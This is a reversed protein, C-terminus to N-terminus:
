MGPTPAITRSQTRDHMVHWRFLVFVSRGAPRSCGSSTGEWTHASLEMDEDLAKGLHAAFGDDERHNVAGGLVRVEDGQTMWICGGGHRPGEEVADDAEM